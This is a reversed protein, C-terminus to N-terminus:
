RISRRGSDPRGNPMKGTYDGKALVKGQGNTRQGNPLVLKTEWLRTLNTNHDSVAWVSIM